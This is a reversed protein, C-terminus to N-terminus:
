LYKLKVVIPKKPNREEKSKKQKAINIVLKDDISVKHEEPNMPNVLNLRVGLYERLTFSSQESDEFISKQIIISDYLEPLIQYWAAQDKDISRRSWEIGEELKMQKSFTIESVQIGNNGNKWWPVYCSSYFNVTKMYVKEEENKNQVIKLIKSSIPHNGERLVESFFVNALPKSSSLCATLADTQPIDSIDTLVSSLRAMTYFADGMKQTFSAAFTDYYIKALKEKCSELLTYRRQKPDDLYMIEPHNAAGVISRISKQVFSDIGKPTNINTNGTVLHKMKEADVKSKGRDMGVNATEDVVILMKGILHANFKETLESLGCVTISLDEGFVYDCIFDYVMSKGVGQPGIIFMMIDTRMLYRIIHFFFELSYNYHHEDGQGWVDKMHKLLPKCIKYCALYCEKKSKYDNENYLYKAKFGPFVNFFDPNHDPEDIHYPECIIKQSRINSNNHLFGFVPRRVCYKGDKKYEDDAGIPKDYTCTYNGDGFCSYAGTPSIGGKLCFREEASIKFCILLRASTIKRCVRNLYPLFYKRAEKYCKEFTDEEFTKNEADKLLDNVYYKDKPCYQVRPDEKHRELYYKEQEKTNKHIVKIGKKKHTKAGKEPKPLYKEDSDSM